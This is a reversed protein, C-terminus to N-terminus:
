HPANSPLKPAKKPATRPSHCADTMAIHMEYLDDRRAARNWDPAETIGPCIHECLMASILDRIRNAHESSITVNM